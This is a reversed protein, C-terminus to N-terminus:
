KPAPPMTAAREPRAELCRDLGAELGSLSPPLLPTEIATGYRSFDLGSRSVTLWRFIPLARVDDLPVGGGRGGFWQRSDYSNNRNDGLVWVEGDGVAYPGETEDLMGLEDLFVLYAHDELFEVFLEGALRDGDVSAFEAHGVHCHPVEWGNIWPHGARVEFTDGPVAIVRKVFDQERHEPSRFIVAEGRETPRRRLTLKEAILHDGVLLTPEMAGSPIKFAELVYARIPARVAVTVLVGVIWYGLLRAGAQRRLTQKPLRFLDVISAAWVGLLSLVLGAFAVGYGLARGVAPLTLAGAVFFATPVALWILARRTQGVYFHGAGTPGFAACLLAVSASPKQDKTPKTM